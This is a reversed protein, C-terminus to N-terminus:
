NAEMFPQNHMRHGAIILLLMGIFLPIWYLETSAGLPTDRGTQEIHNLNLSIKELAESNTGLYYLGKTEDAIHQLLAEDLPMKVLVPQEKVAKPFAVRNHSGIGITHIRINHQKANQLAVIPHIKGSTNAGDTMLVLVRQRQQNEKLRQTALAIADGLATKEGAINNELDALLTKVTQHDPTLPILTYADDAFIIVGIRDGQRLNILDIAVKKIMELRDVVEGDIVFDLARTSGSVDLAFMIDRGHLLDESHTDIWQPRSLTLSLLTIGVLWLWVSKNKKSSSAQHTQLLDALPHILAAGNQKRQPPKKQMVFFLLLPLLLALFGLPMAFHMM